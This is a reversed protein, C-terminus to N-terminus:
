LRDSPGHCMKKYLAEHAAVAEDPKMVRGIAQRAGRALSRCLGENRAIRVVADALGDPSGPEFLLASVEHRFVDTVGPIRSAAIPVGAAAAELLVTPLGEKFSPLVLLDFIPLLRGVDDRNGLFRVRGEAPLQAALKEYLRRQPGDGVLLANIEPVRDLVRPLAALFLDIGKIPCLRGVVGVTLGGGIGLERCLSESEEASSPVPAVQGGSPIVSYQDPRGVGHRLLLEDRVSGTVAVIVDTRAALRREIERFFSSRLPGFYSDLVHGHFTHVLRVPLPSLLAAARGVVGAKSTHTHVIHPRFRAIQDKLFLLAKLDGILAPSRRLGPVRVLRGGALAVQESLDGEGRGPEGAAVLTEFGRGSLGRTLNLVCRAPGGVNM